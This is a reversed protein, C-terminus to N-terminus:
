IFFGFFIIPINPCIILDDAYSFKDTLIPSLFQFMIFVTNGFCPRIEHLM